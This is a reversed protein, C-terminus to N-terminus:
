ITEKEKIQSNHEDISDVSTEDSTTDDILFKKHAELKIKKKEEESLGSLTDIEQFLIVTNRLQEQVADVFALDDKDVSVNELLMKKTQKLPELIGFFIDCFTNTCLYFSLIVANQSLLIIDNNQILLNATTWLIVIVNITLLSVCGFTKNINEYFSYKKEIIEAKQITSHIKHHPIQKDSLYKPIITYWVLFMAISFGLITWALTLVSMAKEYTWSLEVRISNFAICLFIYSMLLSAENNHVWIGFRSKSMHKSSILFCIKLVISALLATLAAWMLAKLESILDLKYLLM